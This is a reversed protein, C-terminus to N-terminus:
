ARWGRARRSVRGTRRRSGSPVLVRVPAGVAASRIWWRRLPDHFLASVVALAVFSGGVVLVTAWLRFLTSPDLPERNTICLAALVILGLMGVGAGFESQESM